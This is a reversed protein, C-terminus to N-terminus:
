RSSNNKFNGFYAEGVIHGKRIVVLGDTNFSPTAAYEIAKLLKESNMGVAEPKCERWEKTPWYTGTYKGQGLYEAGTSTQNAGQPSTKQTLISCGNLLLAALLTVLISRYVTTM